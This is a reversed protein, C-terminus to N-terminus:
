KEQWIGVRGLVIAKHRCKPLAQGRVPDMLSTSTIQPFFILSPHPTPPLTWGCAHMVQYFPEPLSHPIEQCQTSWSARNRSPHYWEENSNQAMAVGFSLSHPYSIRFGTTNIIGSGLVSAKTPEVPVLLSKSSFAVWRHDHAPTM